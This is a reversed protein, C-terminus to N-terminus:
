AAPPEVGWMRASSRVGQVPYLLQGDGPGRFAYIGPVRKDGCFLHPLYVVAESRASWGLSLSSPSDLFTKEGTVPRPVGDVVFFAHPVECEGSWQAVLGHGDPSPLAYEWFGTLDIGAPHPPLPLKLDDQFQSTAAFAAEPSKFPELTHRPVDLLYFTGERRVVVPGPVTWQYYLRYDELRYLVEGDVGLFTLGGDEQVVVGQLPLRPLEIAVRAPRSTAPTTGHQAENGATACGAFLTAMAVSTLLKKTVPV